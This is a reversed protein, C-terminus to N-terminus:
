QSANWAAFVAEAEAKIWNNPDNSIELPLDHDSKFYEMDEVWKARDSGEANWMHTAYTAFSWLFNDAESLESATVWSSNSWSPPNPPLGIIRFANNYAVRTDANEEWMELIVAKFEEQEATLVIPDDDSGGPDCAAMSFGIIAVLAIFGFLKLTNKMFVEKKFYIFPRCGKLHKIGRIVSVMTCWTLFFGGVMTSNKEYWSATKKMGCQRAAKEQKKVCLREGLVLNPAPCSSRLSYSYNM